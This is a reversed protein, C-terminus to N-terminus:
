PTITTKNINTFELTYDLSVGTSKSYLQLYTTESVKFWYGTFGSDNWHGWNQNYVFSGVSDIDTYTGNVKVKVSLDSAVDEWSSEGGNFKPMVFGYSAEGVGSGTLVPGDNSSYYEMSRIVTEAAYVAQINGGDPMALSGFVMAVALLLATVRRCLKNKHLGKM